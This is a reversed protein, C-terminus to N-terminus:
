LFPSVVIPVLRKDDILRTLRLKPRKFLKFQALNLVLSPDKPLVEFAKDLYDDNVIM